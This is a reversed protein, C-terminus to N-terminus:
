VALQPHDPRKDRRLIDIGNAQTRLLQFGRRELMAKMITSSPACRAYLDVYERGDLIFDLMQGGIGRGRFRRAVVFVHLENGGEGSEIESVIAVGAREGELDFIVVQARLGNLFTGRTIATGTNRRLHAVAAPDDVDVTFHGKRAAALIESCAFNLDGSDARYANLPMASERVSFAAM